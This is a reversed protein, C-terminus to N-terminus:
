ARMDFSYRHLIGASPSDKRMFDEVLNMSKKQNEVQISCQYGQEELRLALEQSHETILDFSRDDEMFFDTHVKRDRMRVSVDTAGLHEMDLHLFATLEGETDQLNRKNTYVYLDGHANQGSMKLPLQVFHYMQSIENMFEVNGQLSSVAKALPTNEQGSQAIVQQMRQMQNELREYLKKVTDAKVDQPRLLWQQEVSDQLLSRYAKGSFLLKVADGPAQQGLAEHLVDLFDRVSMAPDLKGDPLLRGNESLGPLRGLQELLEQMGGGDLVAGLTHAGYQGSGGGEGAQLIIEPADGAAAEAAAAEDAVNIVNAAGGSGDPTGPLGGAADATGTLGEGMRASGDPIGAAVSGTQAAGEASVPHVPSWRGEEVSMANEQLFADDPRLAEWVRGAMALAEEPSMSPNGFAESLSGLVESFQGTIAAQDNRYNSFQRITELTLPLELRRMQVMTRVDEEAFGSLAKAMEQLSKRDIPMQEEMMTNVMEIAKPEAAIGAADLAKLLTPNDLNGNTFPRIEVTTGNNSKVQFFMSQGLSLNVNGAIRASVTQGNSLALVVNGHKMSSVTGEFVNGVTMQRVASVLQQVGQQPAAASAGTATNQNYQNLMDTIQM